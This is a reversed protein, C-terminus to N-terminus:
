FWHSVCETQRNEDHSTSHYGSRFHENEEDTWKTITIHQQWDSIGDDLGQILYYKNM